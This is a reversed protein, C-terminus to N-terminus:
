NEASVASSIKKVVAAIANFAGQSVNLVHGAVSPPRVMLLLLKDLILPLFRLQMKRSPFLLVLGFPVM